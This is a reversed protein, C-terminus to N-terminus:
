VATSEAQTRKSGTSDSALEEYLDTLDAIYKDISFRSATRRAEMGLRLRLQPDKALATLAEGIGPADGPKVLLCNQDEVLFEDAGGSRTTIVALGWAMAELLAVSMGEGFSPLLFVDAKALLQDVDKSSVWGLVSARDACGLQQLLSRAIDTEGDGALTLHCRERITKPLAAFARIVDFAGKREGVRGLFLLQLSQRSTRDPISQPIDAPNPLVLLKDAPLNLAVAYYDRWFQTLAIVYRGGGIGWLLIRRVFMPVWEHFLADECAHAQVVYRCRLVRLIMCIVGKRLTSGRQSFHVHFVTSRQAVAAALVRTVSWLFLGPQACRAWRNTQGDGIYDSYTAIVRFRINGPFIDKLKRFLGSIGGRVSISPGVCIVKISKPV